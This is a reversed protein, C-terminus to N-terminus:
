GSIARAVGNWLLQLSEQLMILVAGLGLSIISLAIAYEAMDQARQEGALRKFLRAFRAGCGGLVTRSRLCPPIRDTQREWKKTCRM